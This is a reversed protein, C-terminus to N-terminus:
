RKVEASVLTAQRYGHTLFSQEIFFSFFEATVMFDRDGDHNWDTVGFQTGWFLYPLEFPRAPKSIAAKGDKTENIMIGGPEAANGQTFLDPKGDQNWDVVSLSTRSQLKYLLIPPALTDTGGQKTNRYLWLNGYTDTVILDDIKDGDFDDALMRIRSGQLITFDTAEERSAVVPPGVKVPQGDLTKLMVGEDFQFPKEKTGNARHLFVNGQQTGWLLDAKGDHDWDHLSTHYYADGYGPGPHEIPKGNVSAGGLRLIDPSYPSGRFTFFTQGELFERQGDGAVDGSEAIVDVGGTFGWPITLPQQSTKWRPQKTSGVNLYICIEDRMSVMLDILGDNNWDVLSPRAIAGKPFEGDRPFPTRALTLRKSDGGGKYYMLYEIQGPAPDHHIGSWWWSGTVLDLRGDGDFDAVSPAAAWTTDIPQGDAVVPGVYELKPVGKQDRGTGRFLWIMGTTYGGTVIDPIGDGTFDGVWPQNYYDHLFTKKGYDEAVPAEPVELRHDGAQIFSQFALKPQTKTGVNKWWLIVNGSTGVILDTLGDNDWDFLFPAGYWGTDLPGHEDTLVRCGIFNPSGPKGHNPFWMLNGKETGAVIDFLGDGNFDGATATFHSWGGLSQGARRRLVDADGIWPAPSVQWAESSPVPRVDFYIAYKTSQNGTQTHSWVITGTKPLVERNFLRAKRNRIVVNSRGDKTLSARVVSAPFQAPLSDDDFRAPRDYESLSGDFKPFPIPKGSADLQQVQLTSLDASGGLGREALIRDFDVPLSAVLTDTKRDKLDVAPVEVILRVKGTGKWEPKSQAWTIILLSLTAISVLIGLRLRSINM